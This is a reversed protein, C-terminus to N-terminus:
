MFRTYEVLAQKQHAETASLPTSSRRVTGRPCSPEKAPADSLACSGPRGFPNFDEVVRQGSGAGNLLALSQTFDPKPPLEPRQQQQQEWGPQLLSPSTDQPPTADERDRYALRLLEPKEAPRPSPSDATSNLYGLHLETQEKAPPLSTPKETGDRFVFFLDKQEENPTMTPTETPDRFAPYLEAQEKTPTPTTPAETTDRFASFLDDPAQAASSSPAGAQERTPPPTTQAETTDRFASFLDDPAQAASPSPACDTTERLTPCLGVMPAKALPMLFQTAPPTPSPSSSTGESGFSLLPTPSLCKDRPAKVTGTAAAAAAAAAPPQLNSHASGNTPNMSSLGTFNFPSAPRGISTLPSEERAPDSTQMEPPAGLPFFLQDVNPSVSSDITASWVIEQTPATPVGPPSPAATTACQFIQGVPFIECTRSFENDLFFADAAEQSRTIDGVLVGGGPVKEVGGDRNHAAGEAAAAQEKDDYFPFDFPNTGKSVPRRGQVELSDDLGGEGGTARGWAGVCVQTAENNEEEDSSSDFPNIGGSNDSARRYPAGPTTTADGVWVAPDTALNMSPVRRLEETTSKPSSSIRAGDSSTEVPSDADSGQDRKEDSQAVDISTDTSMTQANHPSVSTGAAVVMADPHELRLHMVAM